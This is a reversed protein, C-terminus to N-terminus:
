AGEGGDGQAPQETPAYHLAYGGLPEGTDPDDIRDYQLGLILVHAPQRTLEARAGDVPGGIFRVAASM